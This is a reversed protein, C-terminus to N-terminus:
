AEELPREEHVAQMEANRTKTAFIFSKKTVAKCPSLKKRKSTFLNQIKKSPPPKM